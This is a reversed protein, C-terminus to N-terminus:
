CILLTANNASLFGGDQGSSNTRASKGTSCCGFASTESPEPFSVTKASFSVYTCHSSIYVKEAGVEFLGTVSTSLSERVGGPTLHTIQM